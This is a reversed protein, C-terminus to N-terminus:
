LIVPDLNSVTIYNFTVLPCTLIIVACASEILTGAAIIRGLGM